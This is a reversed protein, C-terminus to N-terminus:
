VPVNRPFFSLYPTVSDFPGPSVASFRALSRLQSKLKAWMGKYVFLIHDSFLSVNERSGPAGWALLGLEPAGPQVPELGLSQYQSSNHPPTPHLSSLTM